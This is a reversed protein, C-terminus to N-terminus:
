VQELQHGAAAAQQIMQQAMQAPVPRTSGDPARLTVMGGQPQGMEPPAGMPPAPRGQPMQGISGLTPPPGQPGQFGNGPQGPRFQQTYPQFPTQQLRHAAQAGLDMYPQNAQQQIQLARDTGKQQETAAKKAANSQIKASGLASAASAIGGIILPVPM